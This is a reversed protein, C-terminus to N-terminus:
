MDAVHLKDSSAGQLVEPALKPSKDLGLSAVEWSYRTKSSTPTWMSAPGFQYVALRHATSEPDIEPDVQTSRPTLGPGARPGVQPPDKTAKPTSGADTPQETM